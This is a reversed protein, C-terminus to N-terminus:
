ALTETPCWCYDLLLVLCRIFSRILKRESFVVVKRQRGPVAGSMVSSSVTLLEILEGLQEGLNMQLEFRFGFGRKGRTIVPVYRIQCMRSM